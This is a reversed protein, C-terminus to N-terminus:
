IGHHNNDCCLLPLLARKMDLIMYVLDYNMDIFINRMTILWLSLFSNGQRKLNEFIGLFIEWSETSIPSIAAM